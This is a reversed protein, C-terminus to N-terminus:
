VECLRMLHDVTHKATCDAGQLTCSVTLLEAPATNADIGSTPATVAAAQRMCSADAIM